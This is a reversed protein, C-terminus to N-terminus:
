MKNEFAKIFKEIDDPSVSSDVHVNRPPSSHGFFLVKLGRFVAMIGRIILMIICGVTKVANTIFMVRGKPMSDAFIGVWAAFIVYSVVFFLKLLPTMWAPENLTTLLAIAAILLANDALSSLFQALMISYFGKTM